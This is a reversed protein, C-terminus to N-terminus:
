EVEVSIRRPHSKVHGAYDRMEGRRRGSIENM